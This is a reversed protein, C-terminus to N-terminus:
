DSWRALQTMIAHGSTKAVQQSARRRARLGAIALAQDAGRLLKAGDPRAPRMQTHSSGPRVMEADREPHDTKRSRQRGADGTSANVRVSCAGNVMKWAM